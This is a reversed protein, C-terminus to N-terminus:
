PAPIPIVLRQGDSPSVALIGTAQPQGSQGAVFVPSGSGLQLFSDTTAPILENPQAAATTEGSGSTIAASPDLGPQSPYGRAYLTAGPPPPNLTFQLGGRQQTQMVAINKNAAPPAFTQKRAPNFSDASRDIAFTAGTFAFSHGAPSIATFYATIRGGKEAIANLAALETREIFKWPEIVSRATVFRGDSLLSGTGAWSIKDTKFLRFDNKDSVTEIKDLRIYYIYPTCNAFAAEPITKSPPNDNNNDRSRRAATATAHPIAAPPRVAPRQQKSFIQRKIGAIDEALRSESASIRSNMIGAGAQIQKTLENDHNSVLQELQDQRGKIM